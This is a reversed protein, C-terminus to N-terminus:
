STAAAAVQGLCHLDRYTGVARDLACVAPAAAVLEERSQLGRDLLALDFRDRVNWRQAAWALLYEPDRCEAWVAPDADPLDAWRAQAEAVAERAVRFAGRVKLEQLLPARWDVGATCRFTRAALRAIREPEALSELEAGSLWAREWSRAAGASVFGRRRAHEAVVAALAADAAPQNRPNVRQGDLLLRVTAERRLHALLDGRRLGRQALWLPLAGPDLRQAEAFARLMALSQRDGGTPMPLAETALTRLAVHRQLEPYDVGLLRCLSLVAVDSVFGAGHEVGGSREEVWRQAYVTTRRPASGPRPRPLDGRRRAVARLCGLADARTLRLEEGGRAIVQEIRWAMEADLGADVARGLIEDWRRRRAPLARAAAVVAGATEPDIVGRRCAWRCTARVDVLAVGRASWRGEPGEHDVAVEDDGDLVGRIVLRAVRGYPRVGMGHLEAARLAGLGATGWVEVGRDVLALVEQHRVACGGAMLGDVLVVVDGATAPLAVLDGASVPPHLVADPLVARVERGGLTPGAFVHVRGAV